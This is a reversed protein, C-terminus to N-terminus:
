SGAPSGIPGDRHGSLRRGIEGFVNFLLTVHNPTQQGPGAAPMVAIVHHGDSALDFNALVGTEGLVVPSWAKPRGFVLSGATVTYAAVMMRQDDTRYFVDRGNPSWRPIRGGADSIRVPRAGTNPFAQAYVQWSGSENSGYALWKGDPSFSPYVEYHRTQLFVEPTGATLTGAVVSLPVTWLDYGTTAGLQHYALRGDPAFSWPVLPRSSQLLPQPGKAEGLQVYALGDSGGLVLARGDPTWIPFKHRNTSVTQQAPKSPTLDHVTTLSAGSDVGSIALQRGNPSLKPFVYRGPRSLLPTAGGSSDISTVTFGPQRRYVLTGNRAVDVQAFGFTPSYAVDDLVPVPTGRLTRQELDFPLVFLAGQNVYTLDGNALLRGYTGGKVVVTRAGDHLSLLELRAADAGGAGIATFLVLRGPTLIQPWAPALSEGALDLIVTPTGGAAPVISLTGRNLAAVIHGDEGWSAGLLDPAECLPVPSGGDISTKKLVGAAWFGVWKGDPSLFPARAGETGPLESASSQDLRQANLHATGAADLSVFVLRSGDASLVVDTGVESGLSGGSRLEAEVRVFPEEAPLSVRLAWVFIAGALAVLAGALAFWALRRRRPDAPHM